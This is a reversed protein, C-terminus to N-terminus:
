TGNYEALLRLLWLLINLVARRRFLRRKLWRFWQSLGAKVSSMLRLITSKMTKVEKRGALASGRM